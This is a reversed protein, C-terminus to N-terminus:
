RIYCRAYPRANGLEMSWPVTTTLLGHTRLDYKQVLGQRYESIIDATGHFKAHIIPTSCRPDDAFPNIRDAIYRKFKPATILMVDPDLLGTLDALQQRVDQETEAYAVHMGVLWTSTFPLIEEMVSENPQSTTPHNQVTIRGLAKDLLLPHAHAQKAERKFASWFREGLSLMAPRDIAHVTIEGVPHELALSTAATLALGAAFAYAGSGFDVVQLDEASLQIRRPRKGVRVLQELLSYALNIQRAQYYQMYFLAVWPDDYDPEDSANEVEDKGPSKLKTALHDLAWDTTQEIDTTALDRTLRSFVRRSTSTVARDILTRTSSRTM